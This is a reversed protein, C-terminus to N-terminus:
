PWDEDAELGDLLADPPEPILQAQLTPERGCKGCPGAQVYCNLAESDDPKEPREFHLYRGCLCQVIQALQLKGGCHPCNKAGIAPPAVRPVPKWLRAVHYSEQGYTWLAGPELRSLLPAPNEGNVTLAENQRIAFWNHSDREPKAFLTAILRADGRKAAAEQGNAPVATLCDGDHWLETAGAEGVQFEIQVARQALPAGSSGCTGIPVFCLESSM